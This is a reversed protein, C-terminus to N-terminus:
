GAPVPGGAAPLEQAASAKDAEKGSPAPGPSGATTSLESLLDFVCSPSVPSVEEHAVEHKKEPPVEAAEDPLVTGVAEKGAPAAESPEPLSVGPPTASVDDIASNLPLPTQRDGAVPLEVRRMPSGHSSRMPSTLDVSSQEEEEPVPQLESPLGTASTPERPLGYCFDEDEPLESSHLPVAYQADICLETAVFRRPDLRRDSSVCGIRTLHELPQLVTSLAVKSECVWETEAMFDLAEEMNLGHCASLYKLAEDENDSTFEECATHAFSIFHKVAGAKAYLAEKSAVLVVSPWPMRVEGIVEWEGTAVLHRVNRKEWLTARTTGRLM